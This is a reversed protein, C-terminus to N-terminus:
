GHHGPIYPTSPDDIGTNLENLTGLGCHMVADEAQTTDAPAGNVHALEHILTALVFKRGVHFASYTIGIDSIGGLTYTMGAVISNTFYNVWISGDALLASLTRRNPLSRFYANAGPKTNAIAKAQSRAWQADAQLLPPIAVFQNFKAVHDGLNLQIGM